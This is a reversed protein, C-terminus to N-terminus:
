GAKWYQPNENQSFAVSYEIFARVVRSLHKRSPYVLHVDVKPSEVEPLIVVFDGSEIEPYCFFPPLQAIGFGQQVLYRLFSFENTTMYPQFYTKSGNLTWFTEADPNDRALCQFGALEEITKPKGYEDVYQKSAVLLPTMDAVKRSIVSPNNSAQYQIVVDIHDSIPDVERTIALTQLKVKPHETMFHRLGEWGIQFNPPMAIRLTGEVQDQREELAMLGAEMEEVSRLAYQYLTEGSETLRLNRTSRELLKQGLAEELESVKRSVTSVPMNLLKAASSFSGQNVVETFVKLSNLDM